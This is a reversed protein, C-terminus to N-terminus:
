SRMMCWGGASEPAVIDGGGRVRLEGLFAAFGGRNAAHASGDRREGVESLLEAHHHLHERLLVRADGGPERQRNLM